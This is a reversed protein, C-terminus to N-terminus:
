EEMEWLSLTCNDVNFPAPEFTITPNGETDPEGGVEVYTRAPIFIQAVYKLGAATGCVLAKTQDICIDVAVDYDRERAELGLSLEHNNFGIVNGNIEYSVFNKGNEPVHNIKM